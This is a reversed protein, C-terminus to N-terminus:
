KQLMIEPKIFNKKDIESKSKIWKKKLNERITISDAIEKDFWPKNSNKVRREKIPAIEDM